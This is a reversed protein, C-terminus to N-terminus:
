DGLEEIGKEILALGVVLGTVVTLGVALAILFQVTPDTGPSSNFDAWGNLGILLASAIGYFKGITHNTAKLKHVAHHLALSFILTIVEVIWGYCWAM